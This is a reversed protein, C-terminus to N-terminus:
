LDAGESDDHRIYTPEDAATTADPPPATPAGPAPRVYPTSALGPTAATPLGAGPNPTFTTRVNPDFVADPTYISAVVPPATPLDVAPAAPAEEDKENVKDAAAGGAIRGTVYALAATKALGMLWGSGDLHGLSIIASAKHLPALMIWAISAGLALLLLSWWGSMGPQFSAQMWVSFLWAALAAEGVYVVARVVNNILGRGFEQGQPSVLYPTSVLWIIPIVCLMLICIVVLIDVAVRFLGAAAAFLVELVTVSSGSDAGTLHRYAVPDKDPGDKIKGAIEKFADSKKEILGDLYKGRADGKLRGAEDREAWTFRQSALLAPGFKEATDTDADGFTRRLWAQYHVSEVIANTAGDSANPSDNLLGVAASGVRQGGSALLLPVLVIGASVGLVLLIWSADQAAGAVDGRWRRLLVVISAVLIGIGVFPVVVRAQAVDVARDAFSKLFAFIFQPQWARRDLSDTLSTGSQAFGSIGNGVKSDAKASVVDGYSTPDLACGLDYPHSQLGAFGGTSWIHHTDTSTTVHQPREGVLGPLGAGPMAPFPADKKCVEVGPIDIARAQGAGVGMLAVLIAGVALIRKM